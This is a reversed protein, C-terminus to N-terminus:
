EIMYKVIVIHLNNAGDSLTLVRDNIGPDEKANWLHTIM